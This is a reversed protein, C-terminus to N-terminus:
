SEIEAELLEESPRGDLWEVTQLTETAANHFFRFDDATHLRFRLCEGKRVPKVEGQQSLGSRWSEIDSEFRGLQWVYAHENTAEVNWRRRGSVRFSLARTRLYAKRGNALEQRFYSVVADNKVGVLAGDWDAWKIPTAGASRRGREVAVRALEPPPFLSSCVIFESDTRPDSGLAVQCCTIDVGYEDSLWEAGTLLAYDYAEAVLIIRQQRNIEEIDVELFDSLDDQRQDELLRIVDEARWQSVMGAYSIAQMMHLKHNGRKLEVVVCSGERDVALWFRDIQGDCYGVPGPKAAGHTIANIRVFANAGIPFLMGGFLNPPM